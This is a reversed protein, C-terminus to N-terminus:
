PFFPFLPYRRGLASGAAPRFMDGESGGASDVDVAEAAGDLRDDKDAIHEFTEDRDFVLTQPELEVRGDREGAAGGDAHM